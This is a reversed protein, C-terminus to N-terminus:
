LSINFALLLIKEGRGTVEAELRCGFRTNNRGSLGPLGAQWHQV